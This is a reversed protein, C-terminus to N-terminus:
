PATAEEGERPTTTSGGPDVPDTPTTGGGGGPTTGGDGGTDGGTGGDGGTDGPDVPDTGGDGQDPNDPDTSPDQPDTPKSPEEEANDGENEKEKEEEEKDKEEEEDDKGSGKYTSNYNPSAAAEFDKLPESSLCNSILDRWIDQCWTDTYYTENNSRDGTWVACSLQPTYGVFWLDRWNNTTGTKGAAIQGSPLAAATATGISKYIVGELVQTVAYSVEPTLVQEGEVGASYDTGVINGSKDLVKIIPTAKRYTGGTAFAGYASAMETTNAQGSGLTATSVAPLKLNGNSFEKQTLGLRQQMAVISAPSVGSESSDLVSLREYGTNSSVATMDAITMTGYDTNGYNYVKHMTGDGSPVEVMTGCDMYTTNPNIGKEIADALTFAKATSGIQRGDESTAINYQDEKFSRGGIMAKIFGTNPDILTLAFEQNEGVAGSEYQKTVADEAYQQMAPDITTVVTLGGEFLESASLGWGGEEKPKFLLDRVYTTFYEYRYIGNNTDEDESKVRVVLEEALAADYEEQSIVGNTLMRSLVVNRREVCADPNLYPDYMTPSNPIGILTAAQTISLDSANVGFYNQAAAQIGYCGDGYNITNLYMLLIEDKSFKKEMETALEIERVKREYSIETAEDSLLTNRVLQQTITSAGEQGGSLNVFVARFIGQLDVGNHQYYRVDETAVTGATVYASIEDLSTLPERKELYLEALVTGEGTEANYDAAYITSQESVAFANTDDVSPLDECWKDVLAMAGQYGGFIALGLGALVVLVTWIGAHARMERQKRRTKM